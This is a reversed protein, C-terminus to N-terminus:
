FSPSTEPNAGIVRGTAEPSEYRRGHRKSRRRNPYSRAVTGNSRTSSAGRSLLASARGPLKTIDREPHWCQAETALESRFKLNVFTPNRM